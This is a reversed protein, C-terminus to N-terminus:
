GMSRYCHPSFSLVLADTGDVDNMNSNNMERWGTISKLSLNPAVDWGVSLAHFDVTTDAYFRSGNPARDSNFFPDGPRSPGLAVTRPLIGRAVWGRDLVAGLRDATDLQTSNAISSFM